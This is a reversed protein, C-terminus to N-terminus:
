IIIFNIGLNITYNERDFYRLYELQTYLSLSKILKLNAIIGFDYDNTESGYETIKHSVFFYNGYILVFFNKLHKYYSLGVVGSLTTQNGIEALKDRNYQAPITAYYDQFQATNNAVTDGDLIWRYFSQELRDLHANNNEDIFYFESFYGLENAVAEFDNFNPFDNTFPNLGYTPHQRIVTGITARLGNLDHKFRIDLSKYQLDVYGNVSEQIKLSYRSGIYRLWIDRNEYSRGFNKIKEYQFLYELRDIPSRFLSANKETGDYYFRPKKEWSFRSIKRVGIFYRYNSEDDNTTETLQGNSYSYTELPQITSNISGGFYLTSYKYFQGFSLLPILLLYKLM